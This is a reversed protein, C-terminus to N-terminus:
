RQAGARGASVTSGSGTAADFRGDVIEITRGAYRAALDPNHTVMIM